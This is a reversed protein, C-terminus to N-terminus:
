KCGGCGSQLNADEGCNTLKACQRQLFALNDEANFLETIKAEDFFGDLSTFVTNFGGYEAQLEMFLVYSVAIIKNLEYRNDEECEDCCSEDCLIQQILTTLCKRLDCYSYLIYSTYKTPDSPSKSTDNIRIQYVGDVPLTFSFTDLVAVTQPPNGIVYTTITPPNGYIYNKTDVRFVEAEIIQGFNNTATFSRCATQQLAISM